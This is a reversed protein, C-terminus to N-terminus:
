AGGSIRLRHAMSAFGLFFAWSIVTPSKTYPPSADISLHRAVRIFALKRRNQLENAGGDTGGSQM